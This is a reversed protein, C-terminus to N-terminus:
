QLLKEIEVKLEASRLNKAVIVGNQDVLVTAPIGSIGYMKAAESNWYQLDSVHKWVLGDDEIAKLWNEKDKDLSVGLFEVGKENVEKYLEVM